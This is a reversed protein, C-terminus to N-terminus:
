AMAATLSPSGSLITPARISHGRIRPIPLSSATSAESMGGISFRVRLARKKFSPSITVIVPRSALIVVKAPM